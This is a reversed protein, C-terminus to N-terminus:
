CGNRHNRGRLWPRHRSVNTNFCDFSFFWKRYMGDELMTWAEKPCISKMTMLAHCAKARAHQRLKDEDVRIRRWATCGHFDRLRGSSRQFDAARAADSMIVTKCGYMPGPPSSPSAIGAGYLPVYELSYGDKKTARILRESFTTFSITGNEYVWAWPPFCLDQKWLLCREDRGFMFEGGEAKVKKAVSKDSGPLIIAAIINMDHTGRMFVHKLLHLHGRHPPNFSGPYVLIRNTRSRDLVPASHLSDFILNNPPSPPYVVVEPHQSPSEAEHGSIQEIYLALPSM